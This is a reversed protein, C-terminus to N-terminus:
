GSLTPDGENVADQVSMDESDRQICSDDSHADADDRPATHAANDQTHAKKQGELWPHALMQASTYREEPNVKLLSAM